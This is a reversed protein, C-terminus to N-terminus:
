EARPQSPRAVRAAQQFLCNYRRDTVASHRTEAFIRRDCVAAVALVGKKLLSSPHWLFVDDVGFPGQFPQHFRNDSSGPYSTERLGPSISKMGNPHWLSFNVITCNLLCTQGFPVRRERRKLARLSLPRTNRAGCRPP